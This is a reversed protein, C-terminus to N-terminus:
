AGGDIVRVAMPSPTGYRIGTAKLRRVESELEAIRFCKQRYHGLLVEYGAVVRENVQRVDSLDARSPMAQSMGGYVGLPLSEILPVGYIPGVELNSM